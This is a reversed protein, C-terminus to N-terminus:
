QIEGTVESLMIREVLALCLNPLFLFFHAYQLPSQHRNLLEGFSDAQLWRSHPLLNPAAFNFKDADTTCNPEFGFSALFHNLRAGHRRQLPPLSCSQMGAVMTAQNPRPAQGPRAPIALTEM